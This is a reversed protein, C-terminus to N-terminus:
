QRDIKMITRAGNAESFSYSVRDGAHLSELLSTQIKYRQVGGANDNGSPIQQIVVSGSIRDVMTVIGTLAQQAWAISAIMATTLAAALMVARTMPTEREPPYAVGAM